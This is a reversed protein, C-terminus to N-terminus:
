LLADAVQEFCLRLLAFHPVLLLVDGLLVLQGEIGIMGLVHVVEVVIWCEGLYQAIVLHFTIDAETRKFAIVGTTEPTVTEIALTLQLLEFPRKNPRRLPLQSSQVRPPM